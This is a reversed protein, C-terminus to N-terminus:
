QQNSIGKVFADAAEPSTVMEMFLESFAASQEFEERLKSSKIFRKGDESKVGYSDLIIENFLDLLKANNGSKVVEEIYNAMGGERGIEMKTLEAKSLNFYFTENQEDGNFDVYKITKKIM